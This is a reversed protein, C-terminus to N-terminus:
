SGPRKVRYRMNPHITDGLFQWGESFLKEKAENKRKDPPKFQWSVVRWWPFLDDESAAKKISSGVAQAHKRNKLLKEAIYGYTAAEGPELRWVFNRIKKGNENMEKEEGKNASDDNWKGFMM